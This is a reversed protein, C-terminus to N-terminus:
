GIKLLETDPDDPSFPTLAVALNEKAKDSLKEWLALWQAPNTWAIFIDSLSNLIDEASAETAIAEVCDVMGPDLPVAAFTNIESNLERIASNVSEKLQSLRSRSCAIVDAIAQQTVKEGAATLAVAAEAAMQVLRDVKGAAQPCIDAATIEVVPFSLKLDTIILVELKEDPRRNARLRGNGQMIEANIQENIWAQFEAGKAKEGTSCVWERKLELLNSCPAGVLILTKVKEFDNVGRSDRWWAGDAGFKMFDIVKTTPDIGKCYDAIAELRQLQDAGRQMGMRGLDRLQKITLNGTDPAEEQKCGHIDEVRCGLKMALAKPTMTADLCVVSNAAKVVERLRNDARTISLKGDGFHLFGPVGQMVRLLDAVWQKAVQFNIAEPDDTTKLCDLNPALLAAIAEIDVHEMNPLRALLADHELGYKGTKVTSDFLSKFAKLLPLLTALEAEGLVQAAVHSFDNANVVLTDVLKFNQSVEEIVLMTKSYDFDEPNPMSIPNIRLKPAVLADSRQKLYGFGDGVSETCLNKLPCSQCIVAATSAGEINKNELARIAPVRSCNGPINPVEGKKPHRIRTGGGPTTEEVLGEHRSNMDEWGNGSELTPVTPNRHQPTLYMLSDVGFAQPEVKGTDYSKGAGTGSMDFVIKSQPQERQWHILRDGKKYTDVPNAPATVAAPTVKSVQPKMAQRLWDFGVARRKPPKYGNQIALKFLSAITVPRGSSRRFSAVKSAVDWSTGPISPSWYQGLATATAEGFENTLAMLVRLSEDYNGSGPSRRPIYNLAEKVRELLDDGDTEYEQRRSLALQFAAEKVQENETHWAIAQEIFDAPLTAAENLLFAQRGKGGFFFRCADKCSPDAISLLEILYRNCIRITQWDTVAKPLRFVLRFKHHEPRSSSSEIALGCHAAIFPQQLAEDMTMGHDIDAAVIEAFNAHVQYRRSGKDLLAPMWPYGKSIHAALDSFTGESRRFAGAYSLSDPKCKGVIRSNAGYHFKPATRAFEEAVSLEAEVLLSPDIGNLEAEYKTDTPVLEARSDAVSLSDQLNADSLKTSLPSHVDLSNLELLHTSSTYSKVYFPLSKVYFQFSM